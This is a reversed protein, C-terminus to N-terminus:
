SIRSITSLCRPVMRQQIMRKYFRSEGPHFPGNRSMAFPGKGPPMRRRWLQTASGRLCGHGGNSRNALAVADDLDLAVRVEGDFEGAALDIAVHSSRAVGSRRGPGLPLPRDVVIVQSSVDGAPFGDDSFGARERRRRASGSAIM